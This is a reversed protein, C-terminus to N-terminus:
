NIAGDKHFMKYNISKRLWDKIKKKVTTKKWQSVNAFKM